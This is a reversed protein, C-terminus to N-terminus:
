EGGKTGNRKVSEGKRRKERKWSSGGRRENVVEEKDQTGIM